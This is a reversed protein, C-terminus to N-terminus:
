DATYYSVANNLVNDVIGLVRDYAEEVTENDKVTDTIWTDVRLSEYNDMNKTIGVSVGVTTKDNDLHKRSHENPVGEKLVSQEKSTGKTVRTNEEAKQVLKKKLTKSDM